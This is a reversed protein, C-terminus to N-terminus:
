WNGSVGGGGSSGGGGVFSTDDIREEVIPALLPFIFM